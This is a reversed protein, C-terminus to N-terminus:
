PRVLEELLGLLRAPEGRAHAITFTGGAQEADRRATAITRYGGCDLFDLKAMDVVVALGAVGSFAAAAQLSGGVDLEGALSVTRVDTGTSSATFLPRPTGSVDPQNETTNTM